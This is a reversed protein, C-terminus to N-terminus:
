SFWIRTINQKNFKSKIKSFFNLFKKILYKFWAQPYKIWAQTTLNTTRPEVFFKERSCELVGADPQGAVTWCKVGYLLVSSYFLLALTFSNRSPGFAISRQLVRKTRGIIDVDDAFALLKVCRNTLITSTRHVGAKRIISEMLLNSEKQYSQETDM